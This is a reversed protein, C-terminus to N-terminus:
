YLKYKGYLKGAKLKQNFFFSFFFPFFFFFFYILAISCVTINFKSYFSFIINVRRNKGKFKEMKRERGEERREREKERREPIIKRLTAKREREMEICQCVCLVYECVCLYVCLCVCVSEIYIYTRMCIIMVHFTLNEKINEIIASCDFLM